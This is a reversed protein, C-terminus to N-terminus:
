KDREGKKANDRAYKRMSERNSKGFAECDFTKM